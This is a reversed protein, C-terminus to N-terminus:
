NDGCIDGTRAQIVQRFIVSLYSFTRLIHFRNRYVFILSSDVFWTWPLCNGDTVTNIFLLNKWWNSICSESLDEVKWVPRYHLVRMETPFYLMLYAINPWLRVIRHWYFQRWYSFTTIQDKRQKQQFWNYAILTGSFLFFTDVSLFCNTVIQYLFNNKLTDRYEDLNKLYG